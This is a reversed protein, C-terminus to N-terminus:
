PLNIWPSGDNPLVMIGGMRALVSGARERFVGDLVVRPNRMYEEYLGQFEAMEDNALSFRRAQEVNAKNVTEDAKAQASLLTTARYDTAEQIRTQKGVAASNVADFYPKTEGPPTMEMFEVNTLTVGYRHTKLFAGM